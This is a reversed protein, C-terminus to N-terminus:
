KFKQIPEGFYKMDNTGYDLGTISSLFDYYIRKWLPVLPGGRICLGGMLKIHKSNETYNAYVLTEKNLLEALLDNRCKPTVLSSYIKKAEGKWITHVKYTTFSEGNEEFCGQFAGVFVVDSGNFARQPSIPVACAFAQNKTFILFLTLLLKKM